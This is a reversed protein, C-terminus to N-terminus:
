LLRAASQGIVVARKMERSPMRVRVTEGMAGDEVATADLTIKFGAGSAILTVPQNKKVLSPAETLRDTIPAGQRIFRAAVRGQLIAPDTIVGRPLSSLDGEASDLHGSLTAGKTIDSHAVFYATVVEVQVQDYGSVKGNCRVGVLLRGGREDVARPFFLEGGECSAWASLPQSAEIRISRAGPFQPAVQALVAAKYDAPLANAQTAGPTFCLAILTTLSALRPLNSLRKPIKM